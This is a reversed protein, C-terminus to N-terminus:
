RHEEELESALTQAYAEYADGRFVVGIMEPEEAQDDAATVPLFRETTQDFLPLAKDLTDNTRLSLGMRHLEQMKEPAVLRDAVRIIGIIAVTTALYGQPGSALSLGKHELQTLFFSRSVLRGAVVSALSVSIMVAIAVQFDGTLEFVILTSSIPSGIIAGAVAGMGALAYLGQSGSVSPFIGIAIEGFASGTLAGLMLAPSFVGGGMRGTMTIAVAIVKIVAYIVCTLFVFKSTLALSTTEYGVGIVHPFQLAILGLIAGAVAPRLWDPIRMATQIRDGAREAIFITHMMAVAAFGCLLGLLVFAPLEWYFEVTHDPLVFETIDGFFIRSVVAGTVAAMVVPGLAHLAYHRLVVELAFLAGALPANFSAAVAAAVACGLLDRSTIDPLRLKESVWSSIVSGLQIAPGERGTSGGTSLTVVAAAVSAMGSGREAKGGRIAAAEIVTAVGGVRANPTFRTLIQGVVLGGLIPVPLVLYWPLTAVVSHITVDDAGYFFNELFAIALRFCSVALGTVAGVAIAVMWILGVTQLSETDRSMLRREPRTEKAARAEDPGAPKQAKTM